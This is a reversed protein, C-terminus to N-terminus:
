FWYLSLLPGQSPIFFSAAPLRLAQCPRPVRGPSEACASSAKEWLRDRM